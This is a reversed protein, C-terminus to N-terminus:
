LIQHLFNVVLFVFQTFPMAFFSFQWYFQIACLADTKMQLNIAAANVRLLCM